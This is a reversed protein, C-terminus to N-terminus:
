SQPLFCSREHYKLIFRASSFDKATPAVEEVAQMAHGAPVYLEIKM